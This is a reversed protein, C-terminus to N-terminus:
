LATPVLGSLILRDGFPRREGCCPQAVRRQSAEVGSVICITLVECGVRAPGFDIRKARAGKDIHPGSRISRKPGKLIAITAKSAPFVGLMPCQERRRNCANVRCFCGDLLIAHAAVAVPADADRFVAVLKGVNLSAQFGAHKRCLALPLVGAYKRNGAANVHGFSIRCAHVDVRRVSAPSFSGRGGVGESNLPTAERHHQHM